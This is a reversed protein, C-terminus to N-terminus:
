ANRYLGKETIYRFVVEPLYERIDENNRIKQRIDSSSVDILPGNIYTCKKRIKPHIDKKDFGRRPFVAFHVGLDLIVDMDKWHIMDVAQDMGAIIYLKSVPNYQSLLYRVTDVTYSPGTKKLEYTSIIIHESHKFVRNLMELRHFSDVPRNEKFPSQNAPMIILMDPSLERLIKRAYYVHGNHVPDFTGGFLCLNM